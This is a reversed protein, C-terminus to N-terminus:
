RYNTCAQDTAGDWAPRTMEAITAEQLTPREGISHFPKQLSIMMRQDREFRRQPRKLQIAAMRHKEVTTIRATESSTDVDWRFHASEHLMM